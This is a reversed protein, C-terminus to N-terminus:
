DSLDIISEREPGVSIMGIEIGVFDEIFEVYKKANEPLDRMNRVGTIDENWGPFSEYIPKAVSLDFPLIDTEVDNYEYATCVKVEDFGSLVDLKTLALLNTGNIMTSYKLLPLDLWGIRRPRKTVSGYENGAGRLQNALDGDIETPFPGDGVRTLYAKTVGIILKIHLPSIGAGTCAGGAITNSSTVYPYTGHDVDLCSGQAMEFIAREGNKLHSNLVYSCNNLIYPKIINLNETDKPSLKKNLLDGLRLSVRNMKAAYCPGVGKKTTGIGSGGSDQEKHESLIVHANASVYLRRELDVGLDQLTKIEQALVSLDLVMGQALYCRTHEWLIGSPILRLIIKTDKVQLTHGANTGGNVRVVLDALESAVDVVRGKGEDGFCEGLIIISM